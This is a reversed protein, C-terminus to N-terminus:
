TISYENKNKTLVISKYLSHSRKYYYAWERDGYSFHWWEGDFPAFGAELMVSRLLLRNRKQITSIYRNYTVIKNEQAFDAIATGMDLPGKPGIISLDIAAGCPHGAVSPFAVFNHTLEDLAEGSLSKELALERRRKLFYRKQVLPHRYAYVVLLKYGPKRLALLKAAVKLRKAVGSRVLFINKLWPYMDPKQYSCSMGKTYYDNLVVLSAGNDSAKVSLLDKYTPSINKM